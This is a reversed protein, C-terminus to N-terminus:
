RQKDNQFQGNYLKDEGVVTCDHFYMQAVRANEEIFIPNNVFMYTGVNDTKFGPDFISSQILAGNRM